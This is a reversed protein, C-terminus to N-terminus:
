LINELNVYSVRCGPLRERLGSVLRAIAAQDAVRVAARFQVEDGEVELRQTIYEEALAGVHGDIQDPAFSGAVTLLVAPPLSRKRSWHGALVFVTFMLAGSIALMHYEAGLALGIAICCFLYVIEEPEKIAARFRVISLAGVLGLSLALSSKVVFIVLITAVTLLPFVASLTERNSITTAFRRYLARVYFGLVGGLAMYGLLRLAERLEVNYRLGTFFGQIKEVAAPYPM